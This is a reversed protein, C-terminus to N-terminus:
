SPVHRLSLLLHETAHYLQAGPLMGDMPRRVLQNLAVAMRWAKRGATM